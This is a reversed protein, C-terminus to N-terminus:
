NTDNQYEILYQDYLDELTKCIVDKMELLRAPITELPISPSPEWTLLDNIAYNYNNETIDDNNINQHVVNNYNKIYLKTIHNSCIFYWMDNWSDFQYNNEKKNPHIIYVDKLEISKNQEPFISKICHESIVDIIKTIDINRAHRNQNKAISNSITM